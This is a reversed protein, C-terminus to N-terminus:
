SQCPRPNALLWVTYEQENAFTAPRSALWAQFVSSAEFEVIRKRESCPDCLPQTEDVVVTFGQVQHIRCCEPCSTIAVTWEDGDYSTM